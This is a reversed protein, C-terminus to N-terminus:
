SAAEAWSWYEAWFWSDDSFVRCARRADMEGGESWSFQGTQSSLTTKITAATISPQFSFTGLQIM